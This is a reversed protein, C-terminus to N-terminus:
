IVREKSSEEENAKELLDIMESKTIDIICDKSWIDIGKEIRKFKKSFLLSFVSGKLSKSAWKKQM